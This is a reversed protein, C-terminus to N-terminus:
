VVPEEDGLIEEIDINLVFDDCATSLATYFILKNEPILTVIIHGYSANLKCIKRVLAWLLRLGTRRAM